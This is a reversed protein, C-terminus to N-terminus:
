KTNLYKIQVNKYVKLTELAAKEWSFRKINEYGKNILLKRMEANEICLRIKESIEPISYPDFFIAGEGAIEPLSGAKSCIIPVGTKQAELIPLGFGEYWSPFVFLDAFSLIPLIHEDPVYGTNM